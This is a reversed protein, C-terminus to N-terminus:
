KEAYDNELDDIIEQIDLVDLEDDIEDETYDEPNEDLFNTM